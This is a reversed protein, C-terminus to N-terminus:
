HTVSDKEPKILSGLLMKGSLPKEICCDAGADIAHQQDEAESVAVIITAQDQECEERVFRALECGFGGDINYDIMVIDYAKISLAEIAEAPQSARDVLGGWAEILRAITERAGNDDDVVLFNQGLLPQSHKGLLNNSSKNKAAKEEEKSKSNSPVRVEFCSGVGEESQVSITGGALEVLAKCVALGLGLGGANGPQNDEYRSYLDFLNPQAEKPIGIGNDRVTIVVFPNPFDDKAVVQIEGKEPTFKIANHVLNFLIQKLHKPDLYAMIEDSTALYKVSIGKRCASSELLGVVSHALPEVDFAKPSAKIRGSEAMSVDLFDSVLRLLNDGFERIYGLSERHQEEIKDGILLDLTEASCLIATIPNKIEHAIESALNGRMRLLREAELVRRQLIQLRRKTSFHDLTARILAAVSVILALIIVLQLNIVSACINQIM